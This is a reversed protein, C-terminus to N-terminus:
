EHKMGKKEAWQRILPEWKEPLQKYGNRWHSIVYPRIGLSKEIASMSLVSGFSEIFELLDPHNRREAM